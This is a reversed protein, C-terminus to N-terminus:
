TASNTKNLDLRDCIGILPSAIVEVQVRQERGVHVHLQDDHRENDAHEQKDCKGSEKPLYM